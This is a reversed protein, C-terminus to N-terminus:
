ISYVKFIIDENEKSIKEIIPLVDTDWDLGGLGCGIKPMSIIDIENNTCYNVAKRISKDIAYESAYRKGDNGYKSQTYCNGIILDDNIKVPDFFGLLSDNRSIYDYPNLFVEKYRNAVTPYKSRIAGAVGSGFGGSCNCGHLILGYTQNLLNEKLYIIM